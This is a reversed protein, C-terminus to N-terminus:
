RTETSLRSGIPIFGRYGMLIREVDDTETSLRSGIPIFCGNVRILKEGTMPTETSLRSGIPIFSAVAGCLAGPM